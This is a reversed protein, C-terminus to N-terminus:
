RHGRKYRSRKSGANEPERTLYMWGFVAGLGLQIVGLVTLYFPFSSQQTAMSQLIYGLMLGWAGTGFFLFMINRLKHRPLRRM